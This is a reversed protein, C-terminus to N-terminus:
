SGNEECVPRSITVSVRQIEFQQCTQFGHRDLYAQLGPNILMHNGGVAIMVTPQVREWVAEPDTLNWRRMATVEAAYSILNPHDPIAWILEHTSAIVDDKKIYPEIVPGMAEYLFEPAHGTKLWHLIGRRDASAVAQGAMVATLCLAALPISGRVTRSLSARTGNARKEGCEGNPSASRHAFGGVLMAGVPVSYLAIFPSRYGQTDFLALGILICIVMGLFIRDALNRRWVLYALGGIVVVRELPDPWTLFVGVHLHQGRSEVLAQAFAMLGGAPLVNFIYYIASGLLAGLGFWIVPRLVRYIDDRQMGLRRQRYFALSASALYFLGMGFAFVIGAAHLEMSVVTSLGCVFHWISRRSYRGQLATYVVLMSVATLQHDPRYDSIPIFLRGMAAFTVSILAATRGYLRVTVAWLGAFALLYFVFNWIRGTRFSFAVHELWWGYGAIGWGLGPLITVPEQLWTRSYLGGAIFPSTAFDAWLAEDPKNSFRTLTTLFLLAVAVTTVGIVLWPWHRWVAPTNNRTSILALAVLFWNLAVIATAAGLANIALAAFVVAGSIGILGYCTRDPLKGLWWAVKRRGLFLLLWGMLLAINGLSLVFSSRFQPNLLNRALSGNLLLPQIRLLQAVFGAGLLIPLSLNKEACEFTPATVKANM